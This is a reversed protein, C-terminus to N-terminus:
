KYKQKEAKTNINKLTKKKQNRLTNRNKNKINGNKLKKYKYINGNRIETNVNRNKM